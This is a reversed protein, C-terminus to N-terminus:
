GTHFVGFRLVKDDLDNGPPRLPMHLSFDVLVVVLILASLSRVHMLMTQKDKEEPLLPTKLLFM